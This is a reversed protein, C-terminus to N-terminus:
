ASVMSASAHLRRAWALAKIGDAASVIGGLDSSVVAAVFGELEARLPERKHVVQRIVRGESVGRLQQMPEWEGIADTNEFVTLDQTLYEVKAMGAEGIVTLERVKAPTLWNINLTAIAGSDLRLLAAVHDERSVHVRKDFEAIGRVIEAGSVFRIVDIDHVALDTIVGVDTIRHPFPGQRKADIQFLRGLEGSQIREALQQIAPNFREVHGVALIRQAREAARLMQDAETEDFAIPKEVLVHVGAALLTTVCELHFETPVAVVAAEPRDGSRLLEYITRHASCQNRQATLGAALADFDVVAVLEVSPMDSLVRAHNRGM